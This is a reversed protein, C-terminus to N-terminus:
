FVPLVLDEELLVVLEGVVVGGESGGDVLEFGFELFVLPGGLFFNFDLIVTIGGLLYLQIDRFLLEMFSFLESSIEGNLELFFSAGDDEKFSLELLGLCQEVGKLLILLLFLHFTDGSRIKLLFYLFELFGNLHFGVSNVFQSLKHVVLRLFYVIQSPLTYSGDIGILGFKFFFALSQFFKLFFKIELYAPFFEM